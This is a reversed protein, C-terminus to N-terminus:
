RGFMCEELVANPNELNWFYFTETVNNEYTEDIFHGYGGDMPSSFM